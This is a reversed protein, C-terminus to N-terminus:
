RALLRRYLAEYRDVVRATGFHEAARVRALERQRELERPDSLLAVVREAMAATDGVPFTYGGQGDAVLEPLGGANSVVV